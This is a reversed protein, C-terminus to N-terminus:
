NEKKKTESVPLQTKLTKNIAKTLALTLLKSSVEKVSKEVIEQTAKKLRSEPVKIQTYQKYTEELRLRNIVATLEENSMNKMRDNNAKNAEIAMEKKSMKKPKGGTSQYPEKGSGYKYRGSRRPVGIHEISQVDNGIANGSYISNYRWM